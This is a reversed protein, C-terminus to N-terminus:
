SLLFLLGLRVVEMNPLQVDGMRNSVRLLICHLSCSFEAAVSMTMPRQGVKLDQPCSVLPSVEPRYFNTLIVNLYAGM